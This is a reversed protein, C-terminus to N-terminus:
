NWGTLEMHATEGMELCVASYDSAQEGWRPCRSDVLAPPGKLVWKGHLDGDAWSHAEDVFVITAGAAQAEVLLAASEQVFAARKAEDAKLLRKKPRKDACGLRHLSRTCASRYLRIGYRVAIVQRVVQWNWNALAIGVAAPTARVAVKLRAQAEADLAPPGGTQAFALAAPGDRDFAALRGGITHAERELGEAVKYAPWGQAPLWVAHWRERPTPARYMRERIQRVDPQWHTLVAAIEGM